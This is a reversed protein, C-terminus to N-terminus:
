SSFHHTVDRLFNSSEFIVDVGQCGALKEFIEAMKKGADRETVLQEAMMMQVFVRHSDEM